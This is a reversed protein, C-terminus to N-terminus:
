LLTRAQLLPSAPSPSDSRACQRPALVPTAPILIRVVPGQRTRLVRRLGQRRRVAPPLTLPHSLSIWCANDLSRIKDRTADDWGLGTMGVGDQGGTRLRPAFLADHSHIREYSPAIPDNSAHFRRLASLSPRLFCTASPYSIYSSRVRTAKLGVVSRAAIM